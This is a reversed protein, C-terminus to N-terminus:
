SSWKSRWSRIAFRALVWPRFSIPKRQKSGPFFFDGRKLGDEVELSINDMLEPLEKKLYRQVPDQDLEAGLHRLLGIDLAFPDDSAAVLGEHVPTGNIPGKGAMAMVGDLINLTPKVALAHDVLMQAFLEGDSQDGLHMHHWIKRKGALCGFCNKVAGTFYLQGHGKLKPLNIVADVDSLSKSVHCTRGDIHVTQNPKFDAWHVGLKDLLPMAGNAILAQKVNGIAPSDSVTVKYGLDMCREAVTALFVPDTQAQRERPLAKVMNPKLLVRAGKPPLVKGWREFVQTLCAKLPGEKYSQCRLLQVAAM